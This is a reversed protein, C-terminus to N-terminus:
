CLTNGTSISAGRFSCHARKRLVYSIACRWRLLPSSENWDQCLGVSRWIASSEADILSRGSADNTYQVVRRFNWKTVVRLWWKVEENFPVTPKGAASFTEVDKVEDPGWTLPPQWGEWDNQYTPTKLAGLIPGPGLDRRRSGPFFFDFLLVIWSVIANTKPYFHSSFKWEAPPTECVQIHQKDKVYIYIAWWEGQIRCSHLSSYHGRSKLWSTWWHFARERIYLGRSRLCSSRTKAWWKSSSPRLSVWFAMTSM